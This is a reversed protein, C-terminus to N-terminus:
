TGKHNEVQVENRVLIKESMLTEQAVQKLYFSPLTGTLVIFRGKVSCSLLRLEYHSSSALLLKAKAVVEESKFEDGDM